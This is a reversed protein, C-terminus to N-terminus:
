KKLLETMTKRKEALPKPLKDGLSDFLEGHLAIEESWAARDFSMLQDFVRESVSSLGSWEIDSYNPTQGLPSDVANGRGHVRNFMWHLVRMNESFGPWMFKGNDDTLFWNVC